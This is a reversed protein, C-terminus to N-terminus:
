RAHVQDVHNQLYAAWVAEPTVESLPIKWTRRSGDLANVRDGAVVLYAECWISGEGDDPSDGDLYHGAAELKVTEGNIEFPKYVGAKFRACARRLIKRTLEDM